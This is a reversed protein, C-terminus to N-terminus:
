IGDCPQSQEIECPAPPPDEERAEAVTGTVHGKGKSDLLYARKTGSVSLDFGNRDPLARYSVRLPAADSSESQLEVRQPWDFQRAAAVARLGRCGGDTHLADVLTMWRGDWARKEQLRPGADVLCQRYSKVARLDSRDVAFSAADHRERKILLGSDWVEFVPSDRGIEGLARHRLGGGRDACRRCRRDVQGM